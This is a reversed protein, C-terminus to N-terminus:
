KQALYLQSYGMPGVEINHFVGFYKQKQDQPDIDYIMSLCDLTREGHDTTVKM